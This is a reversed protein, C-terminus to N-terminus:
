TWIRDTNRAVILFQRGLVHWAPPFALYLRLLLLPPPYDESMTYPLFRARCLEIIFDHMELVERLSRESIAVKHDWFDWYRGPLYRINPGLCLLRGGPKLCRRIQQLTAEISNKDPLHEFFNSTFVCDLMHNALPWPHTCDQHIFRICPDLHQAAGANLDMVIKQHAHINNIFEGWGCGLDLITSEEPVYAQFFSQTLIKWAQDRYIQRRRFRLEYQKALDGAGDHM